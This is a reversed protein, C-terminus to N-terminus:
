KAHKATTDVMLKINLNIETSNACSNFLVPFLNTPAVTNYTLQNFGKTGNYKPDSQIGESNVTQGFQIEVAAQIQQASLALCIRGCM